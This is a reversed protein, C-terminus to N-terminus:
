ADNKFITGGGRRSTPPTPGGIPENHSGHSTTPYFSLDRVLPMRAWFKLLMPKQKQQRWRQVSSKTSSSYQFPSLDKFTDQNHISNVDDSPFRVFSGRPHQQQPPDPFRIYTRDRSLQDKFEPPLNDRKGDNFFIPEDNVTFSPKHQQPQRQLLFMSPPETPIETARITTPQRRIETTYPNIQISAKVRQPRSTVTTTATITTEEPVANVTTSPVDTTQTTFVTAEAKITSEKADYTDQVTPPITTTDQQLMTTTSAVPLTSPQHIKSRILEQNKASMMSGAEGPKLLEDEAFEDEYEEQEQEEESGQEPTQTEDEDTYATEDDMTSPASMTTTMQQDSHEYDDRSRTSLTKETTRITTDVDTELELPAVTQITEFKNDDITTPLTTTETMKTEETSIKKPKEATSPLMTPSLLLVVTPSSDESSEKNIKKDAQQGLNTSNQQLPINYDVVGTFTDNAEVIIEAVKKPPTSNTNGLLFPESSEDKTENEVKYVVVAVAEQSKNNGVLVPQQAVLVPIPEPPANKTPLSIPINIQLPGPPPEPKKKNNGFKGYLANLRKLIFQKQADEDISIPDPRCTGKGDTSYGAPCSILEPAIFISKPTIRRLINSSDLASSIGGKSEVLLWAQWALESPSGIEQGLTKLVPQSTQHKHNSPRGLSSSPVCALLTLTFWLPSLM